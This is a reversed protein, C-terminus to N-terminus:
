ADEHYEEKCLACGGVRPEQDAESELDWVDGGDVGEQVSCVCVALGEAEECLERLCEEVNRAVEAAQAPHFVGEMPHGVVQGSPTIVAEHPYGLLNDPGEVGGGWEVLVEVACEVSPYPEKGVWGGLHDGGKVVEPVVNIL